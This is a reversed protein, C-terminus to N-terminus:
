TSNQKVVNWGRVLSSHKLHKFISKIPNTLLVSHEFMSMSWIKVIKKRMRFNRIVNEM